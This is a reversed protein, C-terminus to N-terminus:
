ELTGTEIDFSFSQGAFREGGGTFTIEAGDESFTITYAVDVSRTVLDGTAREIEVTAAYTGELTGDIPRGPNGSRWLLGRAGTKRIQAERTRSRRPGVFEESVDRGAPPSLLYIAFENSAPTRALAWTTSLLAHSNDIRPTQILGSGSVIGFTMSDADAPRAVPTDGDFFQVRSSREVNISDLRGASGVVSFDCSWIMETDDYTCSRDRTISKALGDFSSSSTGNTLLVAADAFSEAAGGTEEATSFAIAEATEEPTVVLEDGEDLDGTSDCGALAVVAILLALTGLRRGSALVQSAISRVSATRFTRM